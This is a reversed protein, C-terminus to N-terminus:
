AALIKVAQRDGLRAECVVAVATEQPQTQLSIRKADSILEIGIEPQRDRADIRQRM